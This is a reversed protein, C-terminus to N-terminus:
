FYDFPYTDPFRIAVLLFVVRLFTVLADALIAVRGVRLRTAAIAAFLEGFGTTFTTVFTIGLDPEITLFLIPV